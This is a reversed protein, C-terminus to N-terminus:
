KDESEHISGIVEAYIGCEEMEIWALIDANYGFETIPNLQYGWSYLGNPNGFEVIAKWNYENITDKGYLHLIDGEYVEVGNKDHLGTFQGITENDFFMPFDSDTQVHHGDKEIVESEVIHFDGDRDILLSGYIWKKDYSRRGRYKIERM